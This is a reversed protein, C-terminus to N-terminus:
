ISFELAKLGQYSQPKLKEDSEKNNKESKRHHSYIKAWAVKQLKIQTSMMGFLKVSKCEPTKERTEMRECMQFQLGSSVM